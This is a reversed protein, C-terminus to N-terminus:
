LGTWVQYISYFNLGGEHTLWQIRFNPHKNKIEKSVVSTRLISGLGGAEVLLVNGLVPNYYICNECGKVMDK